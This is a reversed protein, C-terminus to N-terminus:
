KILQLIEQTISHVSLNDTDLIKDAIEEYLSERQLLLAELRARPDAVQLLPRNQTKHLRALQNEVSVRMYIVMGRASLLNRNEPLLVVGGGTALVINTLATLDEIIRAERQRFSEEGEVDFIWAIPVGAGAEIEQDSDYFAMGLEKALM